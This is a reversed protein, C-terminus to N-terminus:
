AAIEITRAAQLEHAPTKGVYTLADLKAVAATSATEHLVVYCRWGDVTKFSCLQIHRNETILAVKEATEIDFLCGPDLDAGRIKSVHMAETVPVFTVCGFVNEFQTKM